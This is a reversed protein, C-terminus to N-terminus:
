DEKMMCLDNITIEIFAHRKKLDDDLDTLVKHVADTAYVQQLVMDPQTRIGECPVIYCIRDSVLDEYFYPGPLSPLDTFDTEKSSLYVKGTVPVSYGFGRQKLRGDQGLFLVLFISRDESSM